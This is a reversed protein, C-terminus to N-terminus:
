KSFYPFYADAYKQKSIPNTNPKNTIPEYNQIQLENIFFQTQIPKTKM